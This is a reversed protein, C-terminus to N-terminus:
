PAGEGPGGRRHVALLTGKLHSVSLDASLDLLYRTV